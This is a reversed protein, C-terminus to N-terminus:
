TSEKGAAAGPPTPKWHEPLPKWHTPDHVIFGHEDTWAGMASRHRAIFVRKNRCLLLDVDHPTTEDIDRWGSGAQALASEIARAFLVHIAPGGVNDGYEIGAKLYLATIQEDTLM